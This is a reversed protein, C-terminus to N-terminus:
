QGNERPVQRLRVPSSEGRYTPLEQQVIRAMRHSAAPLVYVEQQVEIPMENVRTVDDVTMTNGSGRGTGDEGMEGLEPRPIKDSSTPQARAGTDPVTKQSHVSSM